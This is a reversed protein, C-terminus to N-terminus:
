FGPHTYTLSVGMTNTSAGNVTGGERTKHTYHARVRWVPNLERQLWLGTSRNVDNTISLNKRWTAIIGIKSNGSLDYNYSGQAQDAIVAGGLGSPSVQRGAKLSLHTRQGTYQVEAAGQSGLRSKGALLIWDLYQAKWKLGLIGSVLHISTGGGVPMYKYGSVMMFPTSRENLNHSFQMSGSQTAYGTLSSGTYSVDEYAANVSLTNRESLAQSWRGAIAGSTRNSEAPVVGTADDEYDRTSIKTYKSSIGFEGVNSQRLWDLFATLNDSNKILRSNSSRTMRLSVGAKLENAGSSGKLVYNPVFMTRWASGPYTPSMVPNTDFDTSVSSSIAHQWSDAWGQNAYLTLGALLIPLGILRQIDM